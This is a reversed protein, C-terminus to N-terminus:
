QRWFTVCVPRRLIGLRARQHGVVRASQRSPRAACRPTPPLRPTQLCVLTLALDEDPGPGITADIHASERGVEVYRRLGHAAIEALEHIAADQLSHMPTGVGYLAGTELAVDRVPGGRQDTLLAPNGRRGRISQVPGLSDVDVLSHRRLEDRLRQARLAGDRDHRGRQESGARQGVGGVDRNQQEATSHAATGQGGDIMPRDPHQLVQHDVEREKARVADRAIVAEGGGIGRNRRDLALDERPGPAPDEHAQVRLEARGAEASERVDRVELHQYGVGPEAGTVSAAEGHESGLHDPGSGVSFVRWGKFGCPCVALPAEADCGSTVTLILDLLRIAIASARGATAPSAKDPQAPAPPPPPPPPLSAFDSVTRMTPLGCITSMWFSVLSLKVLSVPM